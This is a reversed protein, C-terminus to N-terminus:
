ESISRIPELLDMGRRETLRLWGDDMVVWKRTCGDLQVHFGDEARIIRVTLGEERSRLEANKSLFASRDPKVSISAGAVYGSEGVAMEHVTRKAPQMRSTPMFCSM